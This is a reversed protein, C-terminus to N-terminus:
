LIMIQEQLLVTWSLKGEIATMSMLSYHTFAVLTLKQATMVPDPPMLFVHVYPAMLHLLLCLVYAIIAQGVMTFTARSETMVQSKYNYSLGMLLLLWTIVSDLVVNVITPCTIM